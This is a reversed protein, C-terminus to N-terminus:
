KTKIRPFVFNKDKKYVVQPESEGSMYNYFEIEEDEEDEEPVEIITYPESLPIENHPSYSSSHLDRINSIFLSGLLGPIFLVLLAVAVLYGIIFMATEGIPPKGTANHSQNGIPNKRENHTYNQSRPTSAVPQSAKKFIRQPLTYILNRPKSDCVARRM